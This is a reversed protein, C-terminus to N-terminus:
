QLNVLVLVLGKGSELSGMAKGIIAGQAAAHDRVKMAHGPTDSSTLMDGPRISDVDADAWVYVRGALAIPPGDASEARNGLLAGVSFGNAGSVVGAVTRNYAGRAICLRGENIPDIAVVMGPQIAESAPFKEALDAGTIQLVDTIVRGVGTNDFDADLKITEVGAQNYLSLAAGRGLNEEANIYVGRTGTSRYMDIASGQGSADAGYMILTPSTAGPRLLQIEGGDQAGGATSQIVGAVALKTAPTSTGIGVNGTDRTVVLHPGVEASNNVGWFELRNSVGSHRVISAFSGSTNESLYIQGVANAQGPTVRIEGLTDASPARVHLEAAPSTTGIGVSGTETIAMRTTNTATRFQLGNPTGSNNYLIGGSVNSAPSGFLVGRENADPSLISLYNAASREFAASSSGHPTVTGASGALVHLRSGPSTTGIGVAGANDITLVSNTLDPLFNDAVPDQLFHFKGRGFTATREYAIAGKPQLDATVKFGIATATGATSSVNEVRLPMSLLGGQTDTVQLRHAPSTNGIGVLGDNSVVVANAPNGDPADLASAANAKLAYPTPAVRQRPTLTTYAGTSAGDRVRIEVYRENGDFGSAGFNLDTLTFAGAGDFAAFDNVTVLSGVAVAPPSVLGDYLQLQFDITSNAGSSPPPQNNILLVGQYTIGLGINVELEDTPAIDILPPDPEAGGAFPADTRPPNGGGAIAWTGLGVLTVVLGIGAAQNLHRTM